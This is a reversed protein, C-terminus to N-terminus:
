LSVLGLIETLLEESAVLQQKHERLRRTYWGIFDEVRGLMEQEILPFCCQAVQRGAFMTFGTGGSHTKGCLGCVMTETATTCHRDFLLHDKRAM